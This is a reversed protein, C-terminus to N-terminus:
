ARALWGAVALLLATLLLTALDIVLLSADLRSVDHRERETVADLRTELNGIEARVAGFLRRGTGTTVLSTVVEDRGDRKAAIEFDAGLSQWAQVKSQLRDVIALLDDDDALNTRLRELAARMERRGSTYPALFEDRGTLLFGREGTEQDVLSTLLRQLDLEAPMFAGNLRDSRQDRVRLVAIDLRVALAVLALFSALLAQVRRPLRM